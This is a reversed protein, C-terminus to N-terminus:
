LGSEGIYGDLQASASAESQGQEILEILEELDLVGDANGGVTDEL